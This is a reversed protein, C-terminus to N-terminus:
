QVTYSGSVTKDVSDEYVTYVAFSNRSYVDFTYKYYLSKTGTSRPKDTPVCVTYTFSLKDGESDLYDNNGIGLQFDRISNGYALVNAAVNDHYDLTNSTSVHTTYSVAGFLALATTYVKGFPLAGIANIWDVNTKGSRVQGDRVIKSFIQSNASAIGVEIKLNKIRLLASNDFFVIKDTDAIYMYQAEDTIQFSIVGDSTKQTSAFTGPDNHLWTWKVISTLRNNSGLPYVITDRFYGIDNSSKNYGKGVTTFVSAPVGPIPSVAALSANLSNTNNEAVNTDNVQNSLFPVYWTEQASANLVEAKREDSNDLTYEVSHIASIKIEDLSITSPTHGEYYILNQTQNDFLALKLVAYGTLEKNVPLLLEKNANGELTFSLVNFRDTNELVIIYADSDKLFHNDSEFVKGVSKINEVAENYSIDFDVEVSDSNVKFHNITLESNFDQKSAVLKLSDGYVIGPVSDKFENASAISPIMMVVSLLVLTMLRINIKLVIGGLTINRLKSQHEIVIIRFYPKM